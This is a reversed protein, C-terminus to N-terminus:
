NTPIQSEKKRGAVKALGTSHIQNFACNRIGLCLHTIGMALINIGAANRINEKATQRSYIPSFL